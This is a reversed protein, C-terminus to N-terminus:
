GDAEVPARSADGCHQGCIQSAYRARRHQLGMRDLVAELHLSVLPIRLATRVSEPLDPLLGCLLSLLNHFFFLCTARSSIRLHRDGDLSLQHRRQLSPGPIMMRPQLPREVRRAIIGAPLALADVVLVLVPTRLLLLVACPLLDGLTWPVVVWNRLAFM